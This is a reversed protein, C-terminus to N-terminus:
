PAVHVNAIAPFDPHEPNVVTVVVENFDAGENYQKGVGKSVVGIYNLRYHGSAVNQAVLGTVEFQTETIKKVDGGQFVTTLLAQDKDVVGLLQFVVNVNELTPPPAKFNVLVHVKDGPHFVVSAEQAQCVGVAVISLLLALMTKRM